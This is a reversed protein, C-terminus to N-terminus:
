DEEVEDLLALLSYALEGLPFVHHGCHETFVALERREEDAALFAYRFLATSGDPFALRVSRRSKFDEARLHGPYKRVATYRQTWEKSHEPHEDPTM